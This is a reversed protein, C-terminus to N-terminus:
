MQAIVKSVLLRFGDENYALANIPSLTAFEGEFQGQANLALMPRREGMNDSKLSV